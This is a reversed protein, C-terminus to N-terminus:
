VKGSQAAGDFNVVERGVLAETISRFTVECSCRTKSTYAGLFVDEVTGAMVLYAFRDFYWSLRVM